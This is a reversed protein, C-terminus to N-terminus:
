FGPARELQDFWDFGMEKVIRNNIVILRAESTADAPNFHQHVTFPPIYIFDGRTWEFKKAETEWDWEFADICDFKLDWHLDYGSGEAVFIVEEWMHRHKGSQEGPKLFQMYAEVCCERTNLKDHVLHKILGDASREFPMDEATVINSRQEYTRRFDQSAAVDDARFSCTKTGTHAFDREDLTQPM